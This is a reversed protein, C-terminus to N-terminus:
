DVKKGDVCEFWCAENDDPCSTCKSFRADVCTTGGKRTNVINRAAQKFAKLWLLRTSHVFKYGYGDDEAWLKGHIVWIRTKMFHDIQKQTEYFKGPELKNHLYRAWLNYGQPLYM